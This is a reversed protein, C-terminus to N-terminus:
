TASDAVRELPSDEGRLKHMVQREVWFILLPVLGAVVVLLVFPVSWGERRWLFFTVVLYVIYIWGHALWVIGADEGFQQLSSGDTALKDLLFVVTGFALLVGVVYALIRYARVLGSM